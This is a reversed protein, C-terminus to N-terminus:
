SIEEIDIYDDSNKRIGELHCFLYGKYKMAKPSVGKDEIRLCVGERIHTNDLSSGGSSLIKLQEEFDDPVGNWTALVPVTPIWLEEARREIEFWPLEIEKGMCDRQTIRYIYIKFVSQEEKVSKQPYCGYAYVMSSGYKKALLKTEADEKGLPHHFLPTNNDYGVIEYYVTEGPRLNGVFMDHAVKRYSKGREDNEGIDTQLICNRTGSVLEWATIQPYKQIKAWDLAEFLWQKWTPLTLDPKQVPVLGTRGSTGHLKETIIVKGKAGRLTAINDRVQLTEYHRPLDYLKTKKTGPQLNKEKAKRTASTEYKSCIQVGNLTDFLSGVQLESVKAGTFALSEVPVIYASSEQGRLKITRIRGSDEFFGSKAPDKNLHPHRYENNERLYDASLVGDGAAFVVVKDGVKYPAASVTTWGGAKVLNLGNDSNPHPTIAEVNAVLALYM